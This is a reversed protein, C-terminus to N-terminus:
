GEISDISDLFVLPLFMYASFEGIAFRNYITALKYPIFIYVIAAILAIERKESIEEVLKYM